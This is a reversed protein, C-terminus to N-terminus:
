RNSTWRCPSAHARIACMALVHDRENDPHGRVMMQTTLLRQGNRRGKPKTSVELGLTRGYFEKAKLIDDVSFGSLAESEGLMM